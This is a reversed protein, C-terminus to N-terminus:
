EASGTGLVILSLSLTYNIDWQRRNTVAERGMSTVPSRATMCQICYVTGDPMDVQTNRLTGGPERGGVSESLAIFIQKGKVYGDGDVSRIRIKVGQHEFVEGTPQSRGFLIGPMDITTICNDPADPTSSHYVPWDENEGVESGLGMDVLLQRVIDSVEHRLHENM